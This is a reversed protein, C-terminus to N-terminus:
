LPLSHPCINFERYSLKVTTNESSLEVHVSGEEVTRMRNVIHTYNLPHFIGCAYFAKINGHTHVLTSSIFRVAVVGFVIVYFHMVHSAYKLWLSSPMLRGSM